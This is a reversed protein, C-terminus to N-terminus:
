GSARDLFRSRQVVVRTIRGVAVLGQADTVSVRFVLRRGDVSELVVDATVKAGVPSPALHTLQVECGVTTTGPELAHAVAEVTAQEALAVVRPTALVAVDGSHMAIATDADEVSITVSGGMGPAIVMATGYAAAGAGPM